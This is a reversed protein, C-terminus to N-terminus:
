TQHRAFDAHDLIDHHRAATFVFNLNWGRFAAQVSARCVADSHRAERAVSPIQSVKVQRVQQRTCRAQQWDYIGRYACCCMGHARSRTSIANAFHLLGFIKCFVKAPVAGSGLQPPPAGQAGQHEPAFLFLQHCTSRANNLRRVEPPVHHRIGSPTHCTM